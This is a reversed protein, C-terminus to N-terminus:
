QKRCVILGSGKQNGKKIEQGKKIERDRFVFSIEHIRVSTTQRKQDMVITVVVCWHMVFGIGSLRILRILMELSVLLLNM